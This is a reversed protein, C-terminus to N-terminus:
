RQEPILQAPGSEGFSLLWTGSSQEKCPNDPISDGHLVVQLRDGVVRFAVISSGFSDLRKLSWAGKVDRSLFSVAGSGSLHELSEIIWDGTKAPVLEAPSFRANSMTWVPQGKVLVALASGWEGFNASEVCTDQDLSFVIAHEHGPADPCSQRPGAHSPITTWGELAHQSPCVSPSWDAREIGQAKLRTRAPQHFGPYWHKALEELFAGEEPSLTGRKKEVISRLKMLRNHFSEVGAIRESAGQMPPRQWTLAPDRPAAHGPTTALWLLVLTKM